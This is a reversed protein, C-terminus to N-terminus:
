HASVQGRIEGNPNKATHVNVYTLHKQIDRLVMASVKTTGSQGTKCPGCLAVLVNGAKGMAGVHIHAASAAGTLGSFTLRWKLKGGVVTGTFSGKANPAKVHPIEQMADLKAGVMVEKSPAAAALAAVSLAAAVVALVGAFKRM